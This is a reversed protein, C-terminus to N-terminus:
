YKGLQVNLHKLNNRFADLPHESSLNLINANIGRALVLAKIVKSDILVDSCNSQCFHAIELEM